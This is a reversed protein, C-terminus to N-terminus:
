SVVGDMSLSMRLCAKRLFLAAQQLAELENAEEVQQLAYNVTSALSVREFDNEKKLASFVIEPVEELLFFKLERRSFM